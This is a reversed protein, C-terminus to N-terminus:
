PFVMATPTTGALARFDGILIPRTTTPVSRRRSSAGTPRPSAEPPGFPESSACSAPSPRRVSASSTTSREASNGRASAWPKRAPSRGASPRGSRDDASGRAAGRAASAPEFVDNRRLRAALAGELLPVCAAAGPAGPWRRACALATTEGSRSSRCAEIPSSRWPFASSRTPGARSSISGRDSAARRERREEERGAPARGSRPRPGGVRHPADVLEAEGNPLRM